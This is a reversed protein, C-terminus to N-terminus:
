PQWLVRVANTLNFTQSPVCVLGVDRYWIQYLVEGPTTVNGAAHISADGPAPYTSGNGSNFKVALRVISGGVCLLGGGFVIGHGAGLATTGQFYLAGANPMGAGSLTLADSSLRASRAGRLTGALGVTNMCGAQSGPASPNSCPCVPGTGDGFCYPVGATRCARFVLENGNFTTTAALADLDGDGDVDALEPYVLPGPPAFGGDLVFTGNGQNQMFSLGPTPLNSTVALDVDGDADIDAAVLYSPNPPSTLNQPSGFLGTGTNSMKAVFGGNITVLDLDADGDLDVLANAIMAPTNPSESFTASGDNLLLHPGFSNISLIDVDLDGDVDGLLASLPAVLQGLNTAFPTFAGTGDNKLVHITSGTHTVLVDPDLDGDFDATALRAPSTPTGASGANTFGGSGNNKWVTVFGSCGSSCTMTIALLDIDLDLDVDASIAGVLVNPSPPIDLIVPASFSLAGQNMSVRLSTAPFAAYDVFALDLDGDGDLDAMVPPGSLPTTTLSVGPEFCLNQGSVSLTWVSLGGFTMAALRFLRKPQTSNSTTLLTTLFRM